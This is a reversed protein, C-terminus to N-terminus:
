FLAVVDRTAARQSVIGAPLPRKPRERRDVAYDFLDNLYMGASYFLIMAIAVLAQKGDIQRAGALAAGALTNSVVTPSNSIRALALHGYLTQRLSQQPPLKKSM